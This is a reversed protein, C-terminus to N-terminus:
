LHRDSEESSPLVGKPESCCSDVRLSSCGVGPLFCIASLQSYSPCKQIWLSTMHGVLILPNTPEKRIYLEVLDLVRLKFHLISKAEDAPTCLAMNITLLEYCSHWVLQSLCNIAMWHICSYVLFTMGPMLVSTLSYNQGRVKGKNETTSWPLGPGSSLQWHKTWQWWLKMMLPARARCPYILLCWVVCSDHM